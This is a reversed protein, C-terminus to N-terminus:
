QILDMSSYDNYASYNTAASAYGAVSSIILGLVVFVTLLKKM